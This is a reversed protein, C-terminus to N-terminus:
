VNTTGHIVIITATLLLYTWSCIAEQDCSQIGQLHPPSSHVRCGVYQNAGGAGYLSHGHPTQERGGWLVCHWWKGTNRFLQAAVNYYCLSFHLFPIHLLFLFCGVFNKKITSVIELFSTSICIQFIKLHKDCKKTSL